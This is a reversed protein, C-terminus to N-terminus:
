TRFATQAPIPLMAGSVPNHQRKIMVPVMFDLVADDSLRAARPCTQTNHASTFRIAEIGIM